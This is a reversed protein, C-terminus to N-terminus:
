RIKDTAASWDWGSALLFRALRCVDSRKASLYSNSHSLTGLAFLVVWVVASREAAAMRM